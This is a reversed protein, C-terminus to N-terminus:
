RIKDANVKEQYLQNLERAVKPSFSVSLLKDIKDGNIKVSKSIEAIPKTVALITYAIFCSLLLVTCALSIKVSDIKTTCKVTIAGLKLCLKVM